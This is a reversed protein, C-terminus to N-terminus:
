SPVWLLIQPSWFGEARSSDEDHSKQERCGCFHYRPAQSGRTMFSNWTRPAMNIQSDPPGTGELLSQQCRQNQMCLASTRNM